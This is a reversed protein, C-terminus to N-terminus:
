TNREDEEDEFGDEFVGPRENYRGVEQWFDEADQGTSRPMAKNEYPPELVEEEVPRGSEFQKEEEKRCCLCLKAHPLAELREAAIERGCRECIGYRGTELKALALEINNLLNTQTEKISLDKSREFLESGLDAPHNDALSLEDVSDRLSTNRAHLQDLLREKEEILYKRINEKDMM